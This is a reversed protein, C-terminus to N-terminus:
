VDTTEGESKVVSVVLTIGLAKFISVYEQNTQGNLKVRFDDSEIAVLKRDQTVTLTLNNLNAM